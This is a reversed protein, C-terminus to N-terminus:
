LTASQTRRLAGLRRIAMSYAVQAINQAVANLRTTSLELPPRVVTVIRVKASTSYAVKSSDDLQTISLAELVPWGKLCLKYMIVRLM